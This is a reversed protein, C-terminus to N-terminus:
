PAKAPRPSQKGELFPRLAELVKKRAPSHKLDPVLNRTFRPYGIEKLVKVAWDTQPEIGPSGKKGYTLDRHPDKGGTIIHIPFDLAAPPFKGKLSQYDTRSFNACAPAAANVRDPHKFIMLYTLNGGGSFGTIYIRKQGQYRTAVDELLALLGAEDWDFRNSEAAKITEESYGYTKTYRERLKGRIANTNSFSCPAVVIYPLDGRLKLYGSAMGRFGSGAGDVCVLVPWSRKAGPRWARPLSLYYRMSHKTAQKLVLKDVAGLDLIRELKARVDAPPALALVEEAVRAAKEPPDKTAVEELVVLVRKWRAPTPEAQLARLAYRSFRERVSAGGLKAQLLLLKDYAGAVKRRTAQQEKTFRARTSEKAADPCERVKELLRGLGRARPYAQKARQAFTRAEEGLKRSLCWKSLSIWAASVKRLGSVERKTFPAEKSSAPKKPRPDKKPPAASAASLLTACLLALLLRRFISTVPWV